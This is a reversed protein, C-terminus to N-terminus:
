LEKVEKVKIVPKLQFKGSGTEVISQNADFDLTIEYTNSSNFRTNIQTKIGTKDESNIELDYRTGSKIIYNTAGLIMRLQTIKGAPIKGGDVLTTTINNTLLLLDYVGAITNLDEWGKGANDSYHAQVKVIEVKVSDYPGQADTLKVTLNTNFASKRCSLFTITGLAIVVLLFPTLKKM